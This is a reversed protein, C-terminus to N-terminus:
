QPCFGKFLCFLKGLFCSLTSCYTCQLNKGSFNPSAHLLLIYIYESKQIIVEPPSSQLPNPWGPISGKCSTVLEALARGDNWDTQFTFSFSVRAEQQLVVDSVVYHMQIPNVLNISTRRTEKVHKQIKAYDHISLTGALLLLLLLLLHTEDSHKCFSVCIHQLRRIIQKVLAVM